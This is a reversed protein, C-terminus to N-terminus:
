PSKALETIKEKIQEYIKWADEKDMFYPDKVNWVVVKDKCEPCL